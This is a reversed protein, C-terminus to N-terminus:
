PSKSLATRLRSLVRLKAELRRKIDSVDAAHSESLPKQALINLCLPLDSIEFGVDRLQRVLILSELHGENYSRYNAGSREPVALVGTNEYFRITEAKVGSRLALEGIRM